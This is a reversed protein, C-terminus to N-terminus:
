EQCVLTVSPGAPPRAFDGDGDEGEQDEKSLGLNGACTLFLGPPSADEVFICLATILSFM